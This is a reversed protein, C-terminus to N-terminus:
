RSDYIRTIVNVDTHQCTGRGNPERQERPRASIRARASHFGKTGNITSLHLLTIAPRSWPVPLIITPNGSPSSTVPSRSWSRWRRLHTRGIRGAMAGWDTPKESESLHNIRTSRCSTFRVERRLSYRRTARVRMIRACPSLPSLPPSIEPHGGEGERPTVGRSM